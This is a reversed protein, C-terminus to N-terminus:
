PPGAPDRDEILRAADVVLAGVGPGFWLDAAAAAQRVLMPWGNLALAGQDRARELFRTQWPHYVLDVVVQEPRFAEESLPPCSSVDPWTGLPTAQIVLPCAAVRAVLAPDEWAVARLPLRSPGARLAEAHRTVVLLDFEQRALAWAVARAAGGGGLIAARAPSGALREIARRESLLAAFFGRADTNAGLVGGDRRVLVNVAGTATAAPDLGDVLAAAASKHPITVNAGHFEGDRVREIASRLREPAVDIAEYDVVPGGVVRLARFLEASRSHGVPHGFLALRM